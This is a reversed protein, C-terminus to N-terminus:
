QIQQRLRKNSEDNGHNLRYKKRSVSDKKVADPLHRMPSFPLQTASTNTDNDNPIAGAVPKKLAAQVSVRCEDDIAELLTVKSVFV